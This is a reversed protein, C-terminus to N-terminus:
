TTAQHLKTHQKTILVLTLFFLEFFGEFDKNRM